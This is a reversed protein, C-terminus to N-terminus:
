GPELIKRPLRESQGVLIEYPITDALDALEECRICEPGQQGIVVVEEFLEMKSGSKMSTLDILTLGMCVTGVVPVRRGRFLMSARNSLARRFGDSYGIGVVGILADSPPSWTGGYSVVEGRRVERIAVLRSKVQMVPLLEIKTKLNPHIGYLSLGPRSGLEGRWGTQDLDKQSSGYNILAASNLSHFYTPSLHASLAEQIQHFRRIQRATHGDSHLADEGQLLHTAVGEVQLWSRSKLFKLVNPIENEDFGLRNMGTNFKLHIKMNQRGLADLATLQDMCHVVPTLDFQRLIEVQSREFSGFTLIPLRIGGNRLEIGEELLNVGVQKAGFEELARTIVLAGHGYGNAKVM